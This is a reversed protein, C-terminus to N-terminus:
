REVGGSLVDNGVRIVFGRIYVYGVRYTVFEIMLMECCTLVVM